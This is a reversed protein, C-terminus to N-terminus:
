AQLCTNGQNSNRIILRNLQTRVGGVCVLYTYNALSQPSFSNHVILQNFDLDYMRITSRHPLYQHAITKCQATDVGPTSIQHASHHSSDPSENESGECERLCLTVSANIDAARIGQQFTAKEGM